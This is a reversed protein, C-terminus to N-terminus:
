ENNSKGEETPSEAAVAQRAHEAKGEKIANEIYTALLELSKQSRDNAPIPYDVYDPDAATNVFAVSTIGSRKAERAPTMNKGGLGFIIVVAPLKDMSEIGSFLKTLKNIERNFNVREKKTYKDLAGSEADAKLKRFYRIRNNIVKFNTITGGLWREAVYPVGLKEGLARVISKGAPTTGVIIAEGGAALKAKIIACAEHLAIITEALNIVEVGGKSTLIYPKMKPNTRAHSQGYFVGAEILSQIEAKEEQTLPTESAAAEATEIDVATDGINKAEIDM